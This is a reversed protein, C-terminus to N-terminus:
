MSSLFMGYYESHQTWLRSLVLLKRNNHLSPTSARRVDRRVYQIHIEGANVYISLPLTCPSGPESGSWSHNATKPVHDCQQEKRQRPQIASSPSTSASLAICKSLGMTTTDQAAPLTSNHVNEAFVAPSFQTTPNTLYRSALINSKKPEIHHRNQKAQTIHLSQSESFVKLPPVGRSLGASFSTEQKLERTCIQLQKFCSRLTPRYTLTMVTMDRSGSHVGAPQNSTCCARAGGSTGPYM